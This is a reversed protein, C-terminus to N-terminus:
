KAGEAKKKGSFLLVAVVVLGGGGLIIWPLYKMAGESSAPLESASVDVTGAKKKKKKGKPAPLGTAMTASSTLGTLIGKAILASQEKRFTGWDGIRATIATWATNSSAQTIRKGVESARPSRIIQIDGNSFQRYAYLADKPDVVDRSKEKPPAGLDDGAWVAGGGEPIPGYTSAEFMGRATINAAPFSGRGANAAIGQSRFVTDLGWYPQYPLPDAFTPLNPDGRDMGHSGFDNHM